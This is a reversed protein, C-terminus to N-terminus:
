AQGILALLGPLGGTRFDPPTSPSYAALDDLAFLIHFLLFQYM